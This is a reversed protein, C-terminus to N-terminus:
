EEGMWFMRTIGAFVEFTSEEDDGFILWWIPFYILWVTPIAWWAVLLRLLIVRM